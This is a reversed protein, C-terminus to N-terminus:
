QSMGLPDLEYLVIALSKRELEVVHFTQQLNVERNNGLQNSPDQMVPSFAEIPLSISKMKAARIALFYSFSVFLEVGPFSSVPFTKTSMRKITQKNHPNRIALTVHNRKHENGRINHSPM